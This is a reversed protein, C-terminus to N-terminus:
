PYNRVAVFGHEAFAADFYDGVILGGNNIVVTGTAVSGPFDLTVDPLLFGHLTDTFYIGTVAGNGTVSRVASDLAGTFDVTQFGGSRSFTFGHVIGSSDSYDGGITETNTITWADSSTSGPFDILEFTGNNWRVFGHENQGADFCRGVMDGGDNIGHVSTTFTGAVCGSNAPPDVVHFNGNADRRYGHSLGNADDWRGVIEGRANIGGGATFVAGPFDFLQSRHTNLDLLFGHVNDCQGVIQGQANVGGPATASCGRVDFSVFRFEQGLLPVSLVLLAITIKLLSNM